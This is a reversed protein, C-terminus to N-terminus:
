GVKGAPGPEQDDRRKPNEGVARWDYVGRNPGRIPSIGEQVNHEECDDQDDQEGDGHPLLPSQPGINLWPHSSDGRDHHDFRIWDISLSLNTLWWLLRNHKIRASIRLVAIRRWDVHLLLLLLHRRTPLIEFLLLLLGLIDVHRRLLHWANFKCAMFHRGFPSGHLHSLAVLFFIRM